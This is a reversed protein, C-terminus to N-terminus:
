FIIRSIRYKMNFMVCESFPFGFQVFSPESICECRYIKSVLCEGFFNVIRQNTDSIDKTKVLGHRKSTISISIEEEFKSLPYRDAQHIGPGVVEGNENRMKM